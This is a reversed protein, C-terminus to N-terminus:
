YPIGDFINRLNTKAPRGTLYAKIFINQVKAWQKDTLPCFESVKFHLNKSM